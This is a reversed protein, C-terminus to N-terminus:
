VIFMDNVSAHAGQLLNGFAPDHGFRHLLDDVTPSHDGFAVEGIWQGIAARLDAPAPSTGPFSQWDDFFDQLALLADARTSRLGSPASAGLASALAAEMEPDEASFLEAIVETEDGSELDTAGASAPAFRAGVYSGTAGSAYSFSGAAYVHHGDVTEDRAQAEVSIATIGLNALTLLEDGQSGGDGNGDRWLRLDAFAADGADLMGDLNTDLSRLADVSSGFGFGKFAESVVETGNEIAGSGDLDMVLVGDAPSAWGLLEATGDGDLDFSVGTGPASFYTGDGDLDLVIPDPDQPLQAWETTFGKFELITSVNVVYLSYGGGSSSPGFELDQSSDNFLGSGVLASSGTGLNVQVLSSGSRLYIEDGGPSLAFNYFPTGVGRYDGTSDEAYNVTLVANQPWGVVTKNTAPDFDVEFTAGPTSAVFGSAGTEIDYSWVGAPASQGNSMLVKGDPTIAIGADLVPGGAGGPLTFLVSRAGTAVDIGVLKGADTVVYVKGDYYEIDGTGYCYGGMGSTYGTFDSAIQTVAGNPAVKYLKSVPAKEAVYVYGTESDVTIGSAYVPLTTFTSATYTTPATATVTDDAGLVSISITQETGDATLVTFNDSWPYGDGRLMQVAQSANSLFYTWQGQENINLMGYTGAIGSQAQFASEGADLDAITLAGSVSTTRDEVVAGSTQGGVVPADNVPTFTVAVTASDFGGKGDAIMYAFSAAGNFDTYPTFTIQGADLSVSGGVAGGVSVLTLTDGDVDSDNALLDAAAIVLPTDEATSLSDAVAVPVDNVGQVEIVVDHSFSGGHGDDVTVTFTEFASEGEALAAFLTRNASYSWEVRDPGDAVVVIDAQLTGLTGAAPLVSATHTDGGDADDFTFAGSKALPTAALSRASLLTVEGTALDKMFVDYTGNTDGAVLNSAYSRFLVKACDASFQHGYSTGNGPTGSSSSSVLTVAGSELDKVFVDAAGNIDGAVLNSASSYFLVKTGDASFQHSYSTQNGPTGSSSSSVLTVVGTELDKVFIDAAGNIDGAVLNSADSQFLVKTGDASYQYGYSTGNGPTGSSSSSVLTVAGTELNKVFVDAVGNIDGAVLNNAYSYFLVKTGDASFQHGYSTGNGPTGSSSSSVLTVAGTELNKVFVDAVGNIDGAVLNNAYSYFLVKTGDASFQYGSSTGNGPTGSSSSSVLTVAGTEM